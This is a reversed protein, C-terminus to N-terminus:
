ACATLSRPAWAPCPACCGGPRPTLCTACGATPPASSPSSASLLTRGCCGCGQSTRPWKESSPTPRGGPATCPQCGWMWSSTTACSRSRRPVTRSRRGLPVCMEMRTLVRTGM